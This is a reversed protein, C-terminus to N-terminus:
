APSFVDPIKIQQGLGVIRGKATGFRTEVGAFSIGVDYERPKQGMDVRIGGHTLYGVGQYIIAGLFQVIGVDATKVMDGHTKRQNM